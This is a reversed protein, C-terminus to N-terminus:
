EAKKDKRPNGLDDLVSPKALADKYERSDSKAFSLSADDMTGTLLNDKYIFDVSEGDSTLTVKDGSATWTMKEAKAKNISMAAKGDEQITLTIDMGLKDMDSAYVTTKGDQMSAAKWEGVFSESSSGCAALVLILTLVSILVIIKKKM